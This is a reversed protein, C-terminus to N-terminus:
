PYRKSFMEMLEDKCKFYGNIVRHSWKENLEAVRLYIIKMASEETPLSDITKIRRRIEKNMREIINNSHISRRIPKPYQFYTFLYNLKRELNYVQKPYKNEWISKFENFRKIAEERDESLFIQKLQSDVANVDYERVESEFNRSAHITCLQFDARPFVKRIEEDLKPIGDAIFLLPERVGRSYLDSIVESYSLHSEKSSIYFIIGYEGSEKIGMAFIIPEKDVTDRRLYFFLADLFIAIYRKDLPRNQFRKVEEITIETIRSISSRSYRNQFISELIESMKRTSIGKSYLSIILEDIGISRAYPDFLATRFKGERDRPVNLDEIEGFKTKMTREYYGNKIGGHEDIFVDRETKMLNELYEKVANRAVEMIRKDMEEMNM